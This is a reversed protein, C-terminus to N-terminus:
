ESMYPLRHLNTVPARTAEDRRRSGDHCATWIDPLRHLYEWINIRKFAPLDERPYRSASILTKWSPQPTPHAEFPASVHLQAGFEQDLVALM